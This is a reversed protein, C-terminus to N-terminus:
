IESKHTILDIPNFFESMLFSIYFSFLFLADLYSYFCLEQKVRNTRFTNIVIFKKFNFTCILVWFQIKFPSKSQVYKLCNFFRFFNIYIKAKLTWIISSNFLKTTTTAHLINSVSQFSISWFSTLISILTFMKM